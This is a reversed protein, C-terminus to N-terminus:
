NIILEPSKSLKHNYFLWSNRWYNKKYRYTQAVDWIQLITNFIVKCIKFSFDSTNLTKTYKSFTGLLIKLYWLFGELYKRSWILNWNSKLNSFFQDMGRCNYRSLQSTQQKIKGQETELLLELTVILKRLHQCMFTYLTWRFLFTLCQLCLSFYRCM